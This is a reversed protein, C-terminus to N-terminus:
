INEKIWNSLTIKEQLGVQNSILKGEKFLLLTPISMINYQSPIEPNNDINIKAITIKNNFEKSLEELIPTIQKCPGCWEAWFDCIVPYSSNLVKEEFENDNVELITM